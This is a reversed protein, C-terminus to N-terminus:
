GPRRPPMPRRRRRAEEHEPGAPPEPERPARAREEAARAEDESRGIALFTLSVAVVCAIGILAFAAAQTGTSGGGAILVVIGVILLGVPIAAQRLM